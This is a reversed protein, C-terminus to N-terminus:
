GLRSSVQSLSETPSHVRVVRGATAVAGFCCVQEELALHQRFVNLNDLLRTTIELKRSLLRHLKTAYDDIDYDIVDRGQVQSLLQGEQTLLEANEQIAAMHENLLDEEEDVIMSVAEHLALLEGSTKADFAGDGRGAAADARLTAHMMKLDKAPSPGDFKSEEAARRRRGVDDASSVRGM